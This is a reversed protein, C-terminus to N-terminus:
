VQGPVITNQRPSVLSCSVISVERLNWGQLDELRVEDQKVSEFPDAQATSHLAVVKSRLQAQWRRRGVGKM